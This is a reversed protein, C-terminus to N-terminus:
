QGPANSDPELAEALTNGISIVATDVMFQKAELPEHHCRVPEWLSAPLKWAKLLEASVEAHTFGLEQRELACRDTKGELLQNLINRAVDPLQHYILLQGVDHLLGAVFIRQRQRIQCREALAKAAM